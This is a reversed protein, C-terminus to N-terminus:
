FKFRKNITFESPLDLSRFFGKLNEEVLIANTMHNKSSYIFPFFSELILTFRANNNHTIKYKFYAESVPTGFNASNFQSLLRKTDSCVSIYGGIIDGDFDHSLSGMTVLPPSRTVITYKGLM